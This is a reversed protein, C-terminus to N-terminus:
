SLPCVGVATRVYYKTKMLYNRSGAVVVFSSIETGRIFKFESVYKMIKTM